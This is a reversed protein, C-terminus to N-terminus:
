QTGVPLVAARWVHKVLVFAIASGTALHGGHVSAIATNDHVVVRSITIGKVAEDLLPLLRRDLGSECQSILSSLPHRDAKRAAQSLLPLAAQASVGQPTPFILACTRRTDRAALAAQLRRLTVAVRRQEPLGNSTSRTTQATTVSVPNGRPVVSRVAGGCSALAIASALVLLRRWPVLLWM